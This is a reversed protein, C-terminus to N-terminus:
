GLLTIIEFSYLVGRGPLMGYTAEAPGNTFYFRPSFYQLYNDFFREKLFIAKNNFLKALIEPEGALIAPPRDSFINDAISTISSSGLRGAGSLTFSYLTLALFGMIISGAVYTSWGLKIKRLNFVVITGMILPTAFRASHYSFLNLGFFIASYIFFKPNRRGKAYFLITLPLLLTTLSAEFAGRSMMIHWPSLALFFASLLALKQNRKGVELVLYYMALVALSGLLANTFRISFESLGFVAVSPIALYTLLPLKYDGFSKLSLPLLNGWQDRGTQLISHADYAFSAEDPTFGAPHSTLGITRLLLGLTFIGLLLKKHM